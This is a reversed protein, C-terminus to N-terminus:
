EAGIFEIDHGDQLTVYAKKWNKRSGTIRGFRKVKGKVNLVSVKVVKVEFMKEVAQKIEPKTADSSVKFVYENREDAAITSKESVYPARIIAYYREENM